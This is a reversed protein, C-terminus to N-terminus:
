AQEEHSTDAAGARLKVLRSRLKARDVESIRESRVMGERADRDVRELLDTWEASRIGYRECFGYLTAPLRSLGEASVGAFEFEWYLARVESCDSDSLNPNCAKLSRNSIVVANALQHDYNRVSSQESSNVMRYSYLADPIIETNDKRSLRSWLDFDQAYRFSEDYMGVDIVSEKRMMVSGHGYNNHFQLRWLRYIPDVFPRRREVVTGRGDIVNFFCGVLDLRDHADLRGVQASLRGPASIDDSDMRAVYAGRALLLGKNLSRTLGMNEQRIVVIRDDNFFDIVDDFTYTSGDDIILFEFDTFDQGLISGVADALCAPGNFVSMLVTVRPTRM